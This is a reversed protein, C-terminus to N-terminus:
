SNKMVYHHVIFISASNGDIGNTSKLALIRLVFLVGAVM